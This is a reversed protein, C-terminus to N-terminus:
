VLTSCGAKGDMGCANNLMIWEENKLRLGEPNM